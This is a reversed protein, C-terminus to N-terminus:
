LCLIMYSDDEKGWAENLEAIAPYKDVLYQSAADSEGFSEGLVFFRVKEERKYRKALARAARALKGWTDDSASGHKVKLVHAGQSRATAIEYQLRKTASKTDTFEEVLDIMYLNDM